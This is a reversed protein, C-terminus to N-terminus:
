SAAEVSTLVAQMNELAATALAEPNPERRDFGIELSLWGDYGIANLERVIPHFAQHTGPADRKLDAIHMYALRNGALRIADGLEDKRHFIHYTDLMVGADVDAEDILRVCDGAHDLLNSDAPTPEVVLKVDHQEAIEAAAVLYERALRWAVDYPQNYRRYGGLFIVNPCGLDRALAICERLYELSAEREASEPSIPNFGPAGGFAPCLASIEIGRSEALTRIARRRDADLYRPYAHPAAAGIEIGDYGISALLDITDDLSRLPLWTPYAAFLWSNFSLKV